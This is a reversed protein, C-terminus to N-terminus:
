KLFNQYDLFSKKKKNILLNTIIKKAGSKSFSNKGTVILIKDYFDKNIIKKLHKLNNQKIYEM